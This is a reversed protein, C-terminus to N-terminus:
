GNKKYEMMAEKFAKVLNMDSRYYLHPYGWLHNDSMHMCEWSAGGKAKTAMCDSGNNDSDYYHFEHGKITTGDKLLGTAKPELTLYGFRILKGQNQSEGKYAGVMPYDKGNADTITDGLYMFGGCEALSPLGAKVADRISERMSANYSLEKVYLEPYGGGLLLGHINHPLTKDRLPSFEVIEIGQEELVRINEPYYFCCAEDRAVALRLTENVKEQNEEQFAFDEEWKPAGDMIEFLMGMHLNEEIMKSFSDIQSKLDVVEEPLLLGLHRSDLKIDKNEPISGLLKVDPRCNALMEELAKEVKDSYSRGIRNLVIGKILREEDDLLVGKVMSIGTTWLGKYDVILVIPTKTISAIEYSSGKLGEPSVGDYLGMVGEIVGNDKGASYLIRRIEKPESFFSDLNDGPVELVRRHFMPDIYDPGCKFSALSNREKMGKLLNLLGCTFITKGSGSKMAAIMVRNLKM